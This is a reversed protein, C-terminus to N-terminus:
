RRVPEDDASVRGPLSELYEVEDTMAASVRRMLGPVEDIEWDYAAVEDSVQFLQESLRDRTVEYAALAVAEPRAGSMAELVASALLEADRLADTIGHATIPDKFYAADGVLAWGPGASRRVYGCIGAWGHQRSERTADALRGVLTPAALRFLTDFTGRATHHSRLARMREPTTSVFVCHQGDNTPIMGAAAGDGYAWEYGASGAGSYYAYQVASAWKGERLTAAGVDRAVVSAIGDAGVVFRSPIDRRVPGTGVRVGSVRGSRDRLLETVRAGHLVDVGADLAADVLVRDLLYRRPAYLADVGQSPRISIQVREQDGYHFTTLPVPPTGAGVIRQLLGWRSLQLVGARMLGHTSLTDTGYRGRDLLAVRLGGRALLMATAAGAVRAGVVVVDYDQDTAPVNNDTM